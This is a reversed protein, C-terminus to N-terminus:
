SHLTQFVNREQDLVLENFLHGSPEQGVYKHVADKGIEQLAFAYM